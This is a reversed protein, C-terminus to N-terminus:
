ISGSQYLAAWTEADAKERGLRIIRDRLEKRQEAAKLIGFQAVCLWGCVHAFVQDDTEIRLFEDTAAGCVDCGQETNEM